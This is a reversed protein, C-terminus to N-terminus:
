MGDKNSLHLSPAAASCVSSRGPGHPLAPLLTLTRQYTYAWGRCLASCRCPTRRLPKYLMGAYLIKVIINQGLGVSFISDGAKLDDPRPPVPTLDVVLM